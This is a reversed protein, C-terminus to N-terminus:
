LQPPAFRMHIPMSLSTTVMTVMMVLRRGVMFVLSLPQSSAPSRADKRLRSKNRYKLVTYRLALSLYCKTIKLRVVSSQFNKVSRHQVGSLNIQEERLNTHVSKRFHAPLLYGLLLLSQVVAKM